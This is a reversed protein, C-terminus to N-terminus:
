VPLLQGPLAENWTNELVFLGMSAGDVWLSIVHFCSHSCSLRTLRTFCRTRESLDLVWIRQRLYLLASVQSKFDLQQRLSAAQADAARAAQQAQQAQQAAQQAQLMRCCAEPVKWPARPQMLSVM